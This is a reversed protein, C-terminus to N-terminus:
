RLPLLPVDDINEAIFRRIAAEQNALTREVSALVRRDAIGHAFWPAHTLIRQALKLEVSTGGAENRQFHTTMRYDRLREAPKDLEVESHLFDVEIVVDQELAIDHEGIYDDKTRVRLTGHLELRWDPDLPALSEVGVGVSSWNQSLFESTGGMTVIQKAGNHRVLIKRVTTFDEELAFSRRASQESEYEGGLVLGAAIAVVLATAMALGAGVVLLRRDRALNALTM